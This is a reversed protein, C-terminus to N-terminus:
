GPWSRDGLRRRCAPRGGPVRPRRPGIDATAAPAVAGSIGCAPSSEVSGDHGAGPVGPGPRLSALCAPRHPIPRPGAAVRRREPWWGPLAAGQSAAFLAPSSELLALLFWLGALWIAYLPLGGLHSVAGTVLLPAALLSALLAGTRLPGGFVERAVTGRRSLSLGGAVALTATAHLLAALLVPHALRGETGFTLLHALAVLLLLSGALTLPAARYATAFLLATVALAALSAAHLPTGWGEGLGGLVPVTALAAAASWAAVLASGRQLTRLCLVGAALLAASLALPVSLGGPWALRRGIVGAAAPVLLAALGALWREGRAAATLNFFLALSAWTLIDMWPLDSDGFSHVLMAVALGLAALAVATAVTLAPPWARAARQESKSGQILPWAALAFAEAVLLAPWDPTVAGWIRWLAWPGAAALLGWGLLDVGLQRWRRNLLLTGAGAVAYAVVARGSEAGGGGSVLAVAVLALLLTGAAYARGHPPAVRGLGESVLACVVALVLLASGTSPATAVGRLREGLAADAVAGAGGALALGAVLAVALCPLALAHALPLRLRFAVLTCVAFDLACVALVTEPRPWALGIALLMGALGALALATGATRPGGAHPVDALGDHVVAGGALPLLGALALPLALRGLAEPVDGVLGVLLSLVVVLPFGALGLLAFVSGAAARDLPRRGLAFLASGTPLGTAAVALLGLLLLTRPSATPGALREVPELCATTLVVALALGLPAEACLVRAARWTLLGLLLLSGAPLALGLGTGAGLTLALQCVPTLLMGVALLGRSTTELKWRHLTYLGAGFVAAVAGTFTVVQLRPNARIASWFTLVLALSCGVVLLGGVLEGWLINHAELFASLAGRSRRSGQKDTEPDNM